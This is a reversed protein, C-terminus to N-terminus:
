TTSFPSAATGSYIITANNILWLDNAICTLSFVTGEVGGKTTGDMNIASNGAVAYSYFGADQNMNWAGIIKEGTTDTCVIKHIDGGTAATKTVFTYTKGIELGTGSDPLTITIASTSDLLTIKNTDTGGVDSLTDTAPSTRVEQRLGKVVANKTEDNGIITHYSSAIIGDGNNIDHHTGIIIAGYTGANDVGANAGILINRHGSTLNTASSDSSAGAKHGIVINFDGFSIGTGANYGAAINGDGQLISNMAGIGVAVNEIAGGDGTQPGGAAWSSYGISVSNANTTSSSSGIIHPIAAVGGVWSLVGSGDTKLVQGSSGDGTPLTWMRNASLTPAKFGVYNTGEYFRVENQAMVHVNNVYIQGSAGYAVAKNNVIAADSNGGISGDLLNLETATSTVGDLINLEAATSTVGDLINLEDTTVTAGDLIELEAESINASGIVFSTGTIAAGTIAGTAIITGTLLSDISATGDIYINRWKKSESGLDYTDDDDPIIHSDVEAGFVVNDTAADGITITGGNFTTTGTVTLNGAISVDAGLTANGTTTITTFSGAHTGGLVFDKIGGVTYNRTVFSANEAGDSGLLKDDSTITGDAAVTHIRPM